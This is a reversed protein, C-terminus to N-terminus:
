KNVRKFWLYSIFAKPHLFSFNIKINEKTSNNLLKHFFSKNHSLNNNNINAEIIKLYEQLDLLIEKGSLEKLIIANEDLLISSNFNNEIYANINLEKNSDKWYLKKPSTYCNSFSIFYYIPIYNSFFIPKKNILSIFDIGTGTSMCLYCNAFLWIDLLDSKLKSHSYDYFNQHKFNLKYESIQGMRIVFYDNDCLWKISEIYNKINANRHDHYSWDNKPDLNNLYKKDRVILCIIKKNNKYGIKKLFSKAFLNEEELFKLKFNSNYLIGSDDRNTLSHKSNFDLQDSKFIYKNAIYLYKVFPIVIINRKVYTDFFKNVSKGHLYFLNIENFKKKKNITESLEYEISYRGMNDSTILGLHIKLFPYILKLILLVPFLSIFLLFIKLSRLNLIM